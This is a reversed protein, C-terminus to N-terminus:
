KEPARYTLIAVGSKLTTVDSLEFQAVPADRYLLDQPGGKGDIFRTSGCGCSMSCDPQWSPSPCNVSGYQVIDGGDDKLRAIEAVVDDGIVTTNSWSPETLTSSVVYKPLTNIRDAFPNGSLAPWVAAFADYTRRGMLVASCAFLLETQVTNGEDTFSGLSPWDQPNEIVGDLSIYTSNVIKGM